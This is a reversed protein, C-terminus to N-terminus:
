KIRKVDLRSISFYVFMGVANFDNLWNGYELKINGCDVITPYINTIQGYCEYSLRNNKLPRIMREKNRNENWFAFESVEGELFPLTVLDIDGPKFDCPHCFAWILLGDINLLVEAESYEDDLWSVCDVQARYM